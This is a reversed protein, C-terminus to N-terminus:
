PILLSGDTFAWHVHSAYGGRGSGAGKTVWTIWSASVLIMKDRAPQRYVAYNTVSLGVPGTGLYYTGDPLFVEIIGGYGSSAYVIVSFQAAPPNATSVAATDCFRNDSCASPELTYLGSQAAALGCTLSMVLFLFFSLLSRKM